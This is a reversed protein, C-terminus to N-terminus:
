QAQILRATGNVTCVDGSTAGADVIYINLQNEIGVQATTSTSDTFTDVGLEPIKGCIASTRLAGSDNMLVVGSLGQLGVGINSSSNEFVLFLELMIATNKKDGFVVLLGETIPTNGEFDVQIFWSDAAEETLVASINMALMFTKGVVMEGDSISFSGLKKRSSSGTSALNDSFVIRQGDTIPNNGFYPVVGKRGFSNEPITYGSQDAVELYNVEITEPLYEAGIREGDGIKALISETDEDGTNTGSITTVATPLNRLEEFGVNPSYIEVAVSASSALGSRATWTCDQPATTAADEVSVWDHVVNGVQNLELTWKGSAAYLAVYTEGNYDKSWAPLGLVPSSEGLGVVFVQADTLTM